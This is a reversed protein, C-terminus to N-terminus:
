KLEHFLLDIQNENMRDALANFSTEDNSLSNKIKAFTDYMLQKIQVYKNQRIEDFKKQREDSHKKIDDLNKQRAVILPHDEPLDIFLDELPRDEPIDIFLDEPDYAKYDKNEPFTDKVFSMIYKM